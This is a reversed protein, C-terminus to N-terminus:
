RGLQSLSTIDRVRTPHRASPVFSRLWAAALLMALAALAFLGLSLRLMRSVNADAYIPQPM